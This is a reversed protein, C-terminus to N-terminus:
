GHGRSRPIHSRRGPPRWVPWFLQVTAAPRFTPGAPGTVVTGCGVEGAVTGCKRSRLTPGVMEEVLAATGGKRPPSPGVNRQPARLCRVNHSRRHPGPMPIHSRRDRRAASRQVAPPAGVTGGKQWRPLSPGVNKRLPVSALPSPGVNRPHQVPSSDGAATGCKHPKVVTGCKQSRPVPGLPTVNQVVPEGRCRRDSM